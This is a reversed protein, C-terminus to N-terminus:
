NKEALHMRLDVVEIVDDNEKHLAVHIDLVDTRSFSGLGENEINSVVDGFVCKRGVNTQTCQLKCDLLVILLELIVM